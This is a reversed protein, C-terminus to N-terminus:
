LETSEAAPWVISIAAHRPSLHSDILPILEDTKIEAIEDILAYAESQTFHAQLLLSGLGRVSGFAGLYRGYLMRRSLEFDEHSIGAAKLREIAKIIAEYVADPDRSEGSIILNMFSGGAQVETSFSPNILGSDYLERYLESGEGSLIELLMECRLSIGVDEPYGEPPAKFGIQFLPMAVELHQEVRPARVEAPEPPQRREINLEPAATLVRDAAAVAEDPDFNGTVILVMNHLNYFTNYCKYLLEADIKAISEVTGAIDIAVPHNHYLASLLNFFVRWDGDDDFMQIEQGIIGQEKEVKEPTFHPNQVFDLLIELSEKFNETCSFLYATRDFSTYANASAGTKAFREFVDGDKADFMKHELFHAIGDPVDVFDSDTGTKFSTDVSGYRTAFLAYASEFGELPYLLMTLGSPHDIKTYGEAVRPSNLKHKM